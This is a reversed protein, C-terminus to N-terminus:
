ERHNRLVVIEKSGCVQKNGADDGQSSEVILQVQYVGPVMFVHSTIQDSAGEGDGFNWIYREIRFNQLYTNSGDFTVKQGTYVTDPSSFYVQEIREIELTHSAMNQMIEGTLTDVVNLRLIYEGPVFTHEVVQGRKLTGDGLDWEYIYTLTDLDRTGPEYIEYTYIEEEVTKCTEMRPILSRFEYINDSRQRNSSFFGRQLGADVIFGFDDYRSNFPERLQIPDLWKEGVTVSFYIDLGGMSGERDSAFYLRGGDHIFPFMDNGTSNIVPGLNVPQSWYGNELACVYLDVGGYGGPQNSAFYLTKGDQSLSPHGVNYLPDNHVFPEPTTWRDNELRSIFIGFNPNASRRRRKEVDVYNRTFYVMKGDSTFCSPGEFKITNLEESFFEPKGWDLNDTRDVVYLELQLENNENAYGQIFNKRRDSSFVIGEHYFVPSLDNFMRSSFPMREVQYNEQAPVWYPVALMWGAMLAIM